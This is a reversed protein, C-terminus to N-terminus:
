FGPDYGHALGALGDAYILYGRLQTLEQQIAEVMVLILVYLQGRM